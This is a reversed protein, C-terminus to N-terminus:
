SPAESDIVPKEVPTEVPPPADVELTVAQELEQARVPTAPATVVQPDFTLTHLDTDEVHTVDVYVSNLHDVPDIGAVVDTTAAVTRDANLKVYRRFQRPDNAFTIM